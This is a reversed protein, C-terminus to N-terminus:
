SRTADYVTTKYAKRLADSAGIAMIDGNYFDTADIIVGTTDKNYAKIDFAALISSLNSNKVSQYMDSNEDARVSYSPVRIFVQKGRREWQWVQENLQEGGYQQNGVKVGSPVKALRTVVLMERNLASDPIEFYWKDDVKHTKFLGTKSKAKSTIVESYAKIGEKKLAAGAAPTTPAATTPTTAKKKKQALADNTGIACLFVMSALALLKQNKIM